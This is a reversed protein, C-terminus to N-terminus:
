IGVIERERKGEKQSMTLAGPESKWIKIWMAGDLGQQLELSQVMSDDQNTLAQTGCYAIAHWRDDGTGRMRARMLGVNPGCTGGRFRKKDAARPNETNENGAGEMKRRARMLEM